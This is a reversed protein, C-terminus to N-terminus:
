AGPQGPRTVRPTLPNDDPGAPPAPPADASVAGTRVDSRRFVFVTLQMKMLPLGRTLELQRVEVATPLDRVRWLFRAITAYSAEFSVMVPTHTLAYPFLSWRPDISENGGSFVVRPAGGAASVADEGTNVVLSRLKGDTASDLLAKTLAQVVDATRDDPSVRAEFQKLAASEDPAEGGRGRAVADQLVQVRTQLTQTETRSRMYDAVRPQLIWVYGLVVIVLAVAVPLWREVATNVRNGASM